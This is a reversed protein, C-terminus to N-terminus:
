PQKVGVHLHTEAVIDIQHSHIVGHLKQGGGIHTDCFYCQLATKGGGAIINLYEFLM